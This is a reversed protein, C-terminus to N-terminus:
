SQKRADPKILEVYGLELLRDLFIQIFILYYKMENANDILRPIQIQLMSIDNSYELSTEPPLVCYDLKFTDLSWINRKLKESIFTDLKHYHSTSIMMGFEHTWAGLEQDKSEKFSSVKTDYHKNLIKLQFKHLRVVAVRLRTTFDGDANPYNQPVDALIEWCKCPFRFKGYNTTIPQYYKGGIEKPFDKWVERNPSFIRGVSRKIRNLSKKWNKNM